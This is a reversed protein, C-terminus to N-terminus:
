NQQGRPGGPGGTEVNTVTFNSDLKVTVRSGDSKTIHAEYADGEVDTEVREITGGPVKALAAAKVKEATDGTLLEEKKGNAGIHGGKAPDFQDNKNAPEDVTSTTNTTANTTAANANIANLTSGAAAGVVLAAVLAGTMVTKNTMRDGGEM